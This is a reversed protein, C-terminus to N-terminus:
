RGNSPSETFESILPYPLSFLLILDEFAASNCQQCYDYSFPLENLLLRFKMFIACVDCISAYNFHYSTTNLTRGIAVTAIKSHLLIFPAYRYKFQINTHIGMQNFLM